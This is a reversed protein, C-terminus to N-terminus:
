WVFVLLPSFFGFFFFVCWQIISLMLDLSSKHRELEGLLALIDPEKQAWKIKEWVVVLGSINALGALGAMESFHKELKSYVLVCGTLTTVLHDLSIMSLTSNDPPEDVVGWMFDQVQGFIANMTKIESLIRTVSKRAETASAAFTYLVSIIQGSLSILGAVSAAISLPDAMTIITAIHQVLSFSDVAQSVLLVVHNGSSGPNAKQHGVLYM